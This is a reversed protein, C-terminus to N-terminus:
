PRVYTRGFDSTLLGHIHLDPPSPEQNNRSIEYLYMRMHFILKSAYIPRSIKGQVFIKVKIIQVFDSTLPRHFIPWSALARTYEQMDWLSLWIFYWSAVMLLDQSELKSLFRLRSWRALTRLWHDTFYLDHSKYIGAPRVSICGWIFYWSAIM